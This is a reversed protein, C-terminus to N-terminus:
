VSLLKEVIRKGLEKKEEAKKKRAEVGLASLRKFYDLGYMKLKSAGGRKGLESFHKKGYKRKTARGGRASVLKHDM